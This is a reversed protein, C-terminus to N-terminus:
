AYGFEKIQYEETERFFHIILKRSALDDEVLWIRKMNDM